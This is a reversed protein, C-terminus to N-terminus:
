QMAIGTNRKLSDYAPKRDLSQYIAAIFNETTWDGTTSSYQTDYGHAPNAGQIQALSWRKGMMLQVNDRIITVMDRYQVVDAQEYLRGYAPMVLTGGATFSFTPPAALEIIRNLADLVGQVSGGQKLDIKPFRRSDIVNGAVLVNSGRFLVLLDGDSTAADARLVDIVEGNINLTRQREFLMTNATQDGTAGKNVIRDLAQQTLLLDANPWGAPSQMRIHDNGGTQDPGGNTNIIQVVGKGPALQRIEKVVAAASARTGTNVVVIGDNGTQVAINTGAGVIMYFHPRLQLVQLPTSHPRSARAAWGAPSMLLAAAIASAIIWRRMLAWPQRQRM